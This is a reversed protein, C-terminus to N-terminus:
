VEPVSVPDLVMTLVLLPALLSMPPLLLMLMEASFGKGIAATLTHM